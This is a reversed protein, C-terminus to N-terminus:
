WYNFVNKQVHLFLAYHQPNHTQLRQKLHTASARKVPGKTRSIKCIAEDLNSPEGKDSLSFGLISGRRLWPVQSQLWLM